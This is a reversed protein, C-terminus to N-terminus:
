VSFHLSRIKAHSRNRLLAQNLNTLAIVDVTKITSNGTVEHQIPLSHPLLSLFDCIQLNDIFKTIKSEVSDPSIARVGFRIQVCRVKGDHSSEILISFGIIGTATRLM